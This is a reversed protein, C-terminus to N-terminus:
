LSHPSDRRGPSKASCVNYLLRFPRPNETVSKHFHREALQWWATSALFRVLATEAWFASDNRVAYPWGVFAGCDYVVPNTHVRKTIEHLRYGQVCVVTMMCVVTMVCHRGDHYLGGDDRLCGDHYVCHRGGHYVRGDHYVCVVAM